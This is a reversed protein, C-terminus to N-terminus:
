MFGTRTMVKYKELMEKIIIRGDRDLDGLHAKGKLIELYFKTHM